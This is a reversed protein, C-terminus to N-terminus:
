ATNTRREVTDTKAPPVPAHHVIRRFAEYVAHLHVPEGDGDPILPRTV